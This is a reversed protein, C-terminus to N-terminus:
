KKLAKAGALLLEPLEDRPIIVIICGARTIVIDSGFSSFKLKPVIDTVSM